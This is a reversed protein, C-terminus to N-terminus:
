RPLRLPCHNDVHVDAAMLVDDWAYRVWFDGCACVYQIREGDEHQSVEAVAGNPGTVTIRAM